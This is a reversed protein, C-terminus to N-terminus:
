GGDLEKHQDKTELLLQPDNGSWLEDGGKCAGLLQVSRHIGCRGVVRLTDTFRRVSQPAHTYYGEPLEAGVQGQGLQRQRPVESPHHSLCHSASHRSGSERESVPAPHDRLPIGNGTGGTVDKGFVPREGHVPPERCPIDYAM